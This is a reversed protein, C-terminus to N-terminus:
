NNSHLSANKIRRKIAYKLLPTYKAQLSWNAGWNNLCGECKSVESRVDKAKKSHWLKLPETDFVNGISSNWKTLCPVIDGNRKLVCFNRLAYCEFKPPTEYLSNIWMDRYLSPKPWVKKIAEEFIALQKPQINKNNYFSSQNLWHWMFPVNVKESFALLEDTQKVTYETLVSGMAMRLQNPHQKRLKNLKNILTEVKEFNGPVGRFKDHAEGIGDISLGIDIKMNTKALLVKTVIYTTDALIGNTSIQLYAKPIAKHETKLLSYLGARGLLTPEGGSNLIYQIRSFLPSQLTKAVELPREKEKNKWIQCVQCKSNCHNTTELWLLRPKIPKM